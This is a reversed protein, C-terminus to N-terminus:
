HARTIVSKSIGTVRAIQRHSVGQLTKLKVLIENRENREMQQLLSSNPVGLAVLYSRIENDPLRVNIYDDLCKDDNSQQMYETFLQIAIPRNPSFLELGFDIDIFRPKTIYEHVSTWRCDLVHTALGAKVPNQHIYRLVTIFYPITEM